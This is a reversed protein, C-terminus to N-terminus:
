ARLTKIAEGFYSEQTFYHRLGSCSSNYSSSGKFDALRQLDAVGALWKAQNANTAHDLHLHSAVTPDEVVQLNKHKIEEVAKGLMVEVQKLYAHEDRIKKQTQANMKPQLDSILNHTDDQKTQLGDCTRTVQQLKAKRQSVKLGAQDISSKFKRFVSGTHQCIEAHPFPFSTTTSTDNQQKIEEFADRLQIEQSSSREKERKVELQLKQIQLRLQIVGEKEVVLDRKAQELEAELKQLLASQHDCMDQRQKDVEASLAGQLELEVNIKKLEVLSVQQKQHETNLKEFKLV